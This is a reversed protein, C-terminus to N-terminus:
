LNTPKRLTWILKGGTTSNDYNVKYKGKKISFSNVGLADCMRQDEVLFDEDQKFYVISGDKALWPKIDGYVTEPVYEKIIRDM